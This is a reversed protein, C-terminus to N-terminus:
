DGLHPRLQHRCNWGGPAGGWYNAAIWEKKTRVPNRLADRCVQRTISDNPGVVEWKDAGISEGAEIIAAGSFQLAATNAYTYAYRALPSDAGISDRIVAVMDSFPRSSISYRYLERRLDDVAKQGIVNFQELDAKAITQFLEVSAATFQPPPLRAAAFELNVQEVIREYAAVHREALDNYGADRLAQLLAPQSSLLANADKASYLSGINALIQRELALLVKNLDEAFKANIKDIESLTSM